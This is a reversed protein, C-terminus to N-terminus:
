CIYPGLIDVSAVGEISVMHKLVSRIVPEVNRIEVNLALLEICCQRVNDLYKKKHEKTQSTHSCSKQVNFYVIENEVDKLAGQLGAVKASLYQTNASLVQCKDDVAKCQKRANYLSVQLRKSIMEASKLHAEIKDKDKVQETSLKIM